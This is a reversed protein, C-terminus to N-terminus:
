SVRDIVVDKKKKGDVDILKYNGPLPPGAWGLGLGFLWQRLWTVRQFKLMILPHSGAQLKQQNKESSKECQSPSEEEPMM